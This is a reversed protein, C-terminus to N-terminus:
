KLVVSQQLDKFVPPVVRDNPDLLELKVTHSGKKLGYIYYPTWETLIRKDSGDITLRVKYGDKSLQTNSVFFDLLIPKKTDFEGQPQNYTLFPKSLDITKSTETQGVYFVSTTFVGPGKLSENFSRVPFVRLVHLGNSLNYPIRTEITQDYDIEETESMEDIAENVEFFPKEDVIIHISQGQKSDHIERARPFDSFVGLPYVELRLQVRVPNESVEDQHPYAIRVEVEDPEPTRAVPVVRVEGARDGEVTASLLAASLILAKALLAM